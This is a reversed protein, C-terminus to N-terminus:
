TELYDSWSWLDVVTCPALSGLVRPPKTWKKKCCASRLTRLLQGNSKGPGTVSGQCMPLSYNAAIVCGSHGGYRCPGTYEASARPSEHQGCVLSESTNVSDNGGSRWPPRALRTPQTRESELRTLETIIHIPRVQEFSFCKWSGARGWWVPIGVRTCTAAFSRIIHYIYLRRM